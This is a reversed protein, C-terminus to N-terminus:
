DGYQPGALDSRQQFAKPKYFNPLPASVPLVTVWVTTSCCDREMTTAVDRRRQKALDGAINTEGYIFQEAVISTSGTM